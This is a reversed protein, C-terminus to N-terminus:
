QPVVVLPEDQAGRFRNAQNELQSAELRMLQEQYEESADKRLEPFEQEEAYSLKARAIIAREFEEPIASTDTNAAMRTPKKWYNATLTYVDDPPPYLIVNGNQNKITFRSPKKNTQVGIGLTTLWERYPVFTLKQNTALTYNLYFTDNDWDRLDTPATHEKMGVVTPQNFATDDYLFKWDAYLM